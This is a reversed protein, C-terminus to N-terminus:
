PDRTVRTMTLQHTVYTMFHSGSGNDARTDDADYDNHQTHQLRYAFFNFYTSYDTQNRM